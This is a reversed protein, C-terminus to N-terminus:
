IGPNLCVYMYLQVTNTYALISHMNSQILTVHLFKTGRFGQVFQYALRHCHRIKLSDM